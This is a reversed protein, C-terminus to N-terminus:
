IYLDEVMFLLMFIIIPVWVAWKNIKTKMFIKMFISLIIAGLLITGVVGLQYVMTLYLNHPSLMGSPDIFPFGLGYGFFMALPSAVWNNSYIVWLNYRGTTVVNLFDEFNDFKKHGSLFRDLYEKAFSFDLILSIGIIAVLSSIIILALKTKKILLYILLALYIIAMLILFTKSLPLLGIITLAFFCIYDWLKANNSIIYYAFISCAIECVIALINCDYFLAQFRGEAIRLSSELHPVFYILLGFICAVFLAITLLKLNLKLNIQERGDVFIGLFSFITAFVMIKTFKDLNYSGIPLLCYVFFVAILILLVKDFKTKDLNKFYTIFYYKFVVVFFCILYLLVSIYINMFAFPFSYIVYSFGNKVNDVVCMILLLPFVIYTVWSFSCHLFFLVSLIILNVPLRQTKYKDIFENNFLAKIKEM